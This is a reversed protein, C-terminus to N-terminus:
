PHRMNRQSVMSSDRAQNVAIFLALDKSPNIIIVTGFGATGGNKVIVSMTALVFASLKAM